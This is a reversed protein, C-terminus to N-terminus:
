LLADDFFGVVRREYEQPRADIGGVHGAEPIEWLAKPERAAAYFRPQAGRRPRQEARRHAAAPAARDQGVLTKLNAPPPQNAFVADVRDERGVPRGGACKDVATGGARTWRTPSRRAGAGESVVAALDSSRRAAAELMM